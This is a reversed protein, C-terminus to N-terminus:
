FKFEKSKSFYNYLKQCLEAEESTLVGTAALVVKWPQFDKVKGSPITAGTLTAAQKAADEVIEEFITRIVDMCGKFELPKGAALVRPELDHLADVIEPRFGLRELRSILEERDTNIEPNVGQLLQDRLREYRIRQITEDVTRLLMLLQQPSPKLLDRLHITM